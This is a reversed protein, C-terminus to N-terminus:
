NEAFGIEQILFYRDINEKRLSKKGLCTKRSIDRSFFKGPFNKGFNVAPTNIFFNVSKCEIIM